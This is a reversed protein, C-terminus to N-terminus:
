FNAAVCQKPYLQWKEYWKWCIPEVSVTRAVVVRVTVLSPGMVAVEMMSDTGFVGPGGSDTVVLTLRGCVFLFFGGWIEGRWLSVQVLPTGALRTRSAQARSLGRLLSCLSWLRSCQKWCFVKTIGSVHVGHSFRMRNALVAYLHLSHM